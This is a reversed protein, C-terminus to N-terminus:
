PLRELVAQWDILGWPTGDGTLRRFPQVTPPMAAIIALAESRIPRPDTAQNALRQNALLLRGVKEYTTPYWRQVEAM